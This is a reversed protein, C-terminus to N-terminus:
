FFLCCFVNKNFNGFIPMSFKNPPYNLGEGLQNGM